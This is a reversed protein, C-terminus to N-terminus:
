KGDSNEKEFQAASLAASPTEGTALLHWETDSRGGSRRFVRWACPSGDEDDVPGWTLEWNTPISDLRAREEAVRRGIEPQLADAVDLADLQHADNYDCMSMRAWERLQVRNAPMQDFERGGQLFPAVIRAVAERLEDAQEMDDM